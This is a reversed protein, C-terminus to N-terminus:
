EETKVDLMTYTKITENIETATPDVLACDLGAGLSMALFTSNLASREKMGYSINSIGLITKVGLEAKVFSLAKLTERASQPKSAASLVLCDILIDEKPIGFTAATKVIRRAIELRGEAKSPIGSEDLTMGVVCGGYKRVIPFVREMSERSGNVSNIVPKGNYIRAGAELVRYDSSDLQLPIPLMSQIYEVAHVMTSKEDMNGTFVNIDLIEAGAQKQLMAEDYLSDMDGSRLANTLDERGSPNIRQGVIRLGNDFFVTQRASAASTRRPNSRKRYPYDKLRTRLARIFDPNTGCCGGAMKIGMDAMKEVSDAFVDPTLPFVPKGNVLEPLGANAQVLVPVHSCDTFQKVIPLLDEPGLSCNVGLADVGLGELVTIVTIPDNGMLTRGNEQFTLTCIVPLQSNEKAALVAAKAEYLDSMTEILVLDAGADQGAKIQPAFLDYADQFTLNGMPAMLQGLPGIDLAVLGDSGAAKRAISVAARAMEESSYGLPNLKLNNAGFTNTTIVDSGTELYARHISEIVEPRTINFTEPLEGSKLGAAQIMTGMAGDFFILQNDHFIDAKM